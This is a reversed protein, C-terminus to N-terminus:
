CPRTRMIKEFMEDVDASPEGTSQNDFIARSLACVEDFTPFRGHRDLYRYSDCVICGAFYESCRHGLGRPGGKKKYFRWRLKTVKV